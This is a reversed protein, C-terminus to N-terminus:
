LVYRKYYLSKSGFNFLLGVKMGFINLYNLVQNIDGNDTESVAKTEVLVTEEVLLDLRRSAIYVEEYYIDKEVELGCSLGQKQLEIMLAKQYVKEQFGPGFYRHVKMACGIIIRTLEGHRFQKKEM